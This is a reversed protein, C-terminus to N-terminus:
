LENEVVCKFQMPHYRWELPVYATHAYRKELEERTILKVEFNGFDEDKM